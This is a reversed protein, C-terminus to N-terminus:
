IGESLLPTTVFGQRSLRSSRRRGSSCRSCLLRSSRRPPSPYGTCLLHHASQTGMVSFSVASPAVSVSAVSSATLGVPGDPGTASIVPVGTPYRRFAGKMLEAGGIRQDVVLVSSM